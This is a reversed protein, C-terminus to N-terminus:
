INDVLWQKCRYKFEEFNIYYGIEVMDFYKMGKAYIHLNNQQDMEFFWEGITIRNDSVEYIM